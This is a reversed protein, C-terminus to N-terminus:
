GWVLTKEVHLRFTYYTNVVSKKM